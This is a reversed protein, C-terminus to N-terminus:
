KRDTSFCKWACCMTSWAPQHLGRNRFFPILAPLSTVWSKWIAKKTSISGILGQVDYFVPQYEGQTNLSNLLYQNTKYRAGLLYYMGTDSGNNVHFSGGLFSATAGAEFSTPKKYQIDLVSSLKDGFRAEFGGASFSINSVLDYNPFPLGEQQGSRVLLPRYIEFDNVYVLNEDFNGGRVSYQASLENNSTVYKKLIAIIPDGSPDPIYEIQEIPITMIFENRRSDTIVFETLEYELLLEVNMKYTKGAEPYLKKFSTKGAYSFVLVATDGGPIELLYYGKENSSTGIAQNNFYVINVNSVLEGYEDRVTGYVTATNQAGAAYCLLLLFPLFIRKLSM